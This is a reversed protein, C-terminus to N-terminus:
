LWSRQCALLPLVAASSPLSHFSSFTRINLAAPGYFEMLAPMSEPSGLFALATAASCCVEPSTDNLMVHVLAPV